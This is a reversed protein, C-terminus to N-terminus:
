ESWESRLRDAELRGRERGTEIAVTVNRLNLLDFGFAAAEMDSAQVISVAIGRARLRRAEEALVRATAAGVIPTDAIIPTIAICREVGFREVLDANTASRAGGDVYVGDSLQIPEIIGPAACSAAIGRAMAIGDPPGLLRAEGREVNVAVARFRQPWAGSPLYPALAEVFWNPDGQRPRVREAALATIRRCEDPELPAAATGLTSYVAVLRDLDVGHMYDVGANDAANRRTADVFRDLPEKSALWAGAQAGASTGIIIDADSLLIGCTSLGVAVGAYWAAGVPGGGGLVLGRGSM